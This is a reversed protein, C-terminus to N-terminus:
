DSLSGLVEFIGSVINGLIQLADTQSMSDLIGELTRRVGFITFLLCLFSLIALLVGWGPSGSNFCFTSGLACGVSVFASLWRSWAPAVQVRLRLVEEESLAHGERRGVRLGARQANRVIREQQRTLDSM